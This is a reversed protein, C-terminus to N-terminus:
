LKTWIILSFYKVTIIQMEKIILLTVLNEPIKQSYKKKLKNPGMKKPNKEKEM